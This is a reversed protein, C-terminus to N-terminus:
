NAKKFVLIYFTVSPLVAEERTCPADEAMAINGAEPL